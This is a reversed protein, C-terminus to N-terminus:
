IIYIVNNIFLIHTTKVWSKFYIINQSIQVLYSKVHNQEILIFWAHPNKKKLIIYTKTTTEKSRYSQNTHQERRHARLLM